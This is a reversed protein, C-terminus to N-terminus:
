STNRKVGEKEKTRKGPTLKSVISKVFTKVVMCDGLIKKQGEGKPDRRRKKYGGRQLDKRSKVSQAGSLKIAAADRGKRDRKRESAAWNQREPL